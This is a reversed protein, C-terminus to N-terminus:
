QEIFFDDNLQLLIDLSVISWNNYYLIYNFMNKHETLESSHIFALWPKRTKKWCVMPKRNCRDSDNTVQELFKDLDKNGDIFLTNLDISDYGGKCEIVFKFGKCVVLDGSFINKAEESLKAQSWRAGSSVTRSFNLKFRDTLLKTLQLEVRNGKKKCNIKKKKESLNKIVDDIELDDNDITNKNM